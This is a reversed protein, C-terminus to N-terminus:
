EPKQKRKGFPKKGGVFKSFPGPKGASKAAPKGFPRRSPRDNSRDASRNAASRDAPRGTKGASKGFPKKVYPKSSAFEPKASKDFPKKGSFSKPKGTFGEGTKRFPKRESPRFSKGEASSHRSKSESAGVESAGERRRSFPPRSGGFERRPPRSDGFERRPPRAEGLDRRPPRSEGFERRPPRGEGADRRPLRSEGFDRRPPRSDSFERRPPRSEGFDRRPPRSKGFDERKGAFGGPKSFSKRPRDNFPKGTRFSSGERDFRRPRESGSGEAEGTRPASPRFPRSRKEEDWPKTFDPKASRNFPRRERDGRDFPKAPRPTFGGETRRPKAVFKNIRPSPEASEEVPAVPTEVSEAAPAAPAEALTPFEGAIYLATKGEIAITELQRAAILAHIVERIRSRAALPSLFVEVEEETPLIAQNLYLSILASLASPQGANAGAKIQKTFRTTTLEWLTPANDPQPFPLVRLHHWLETLARLVATETVENGLQTALDYASLSIKEALLNYAALALPSVKAPGNTAPPQKWAKDGRLTFIFSFVAPSVLFDPTETGAASGLLNLPIAAGEAILRVLLSRAETTEALTPAANATGLVAEVFSPTPVPLQPRPTYLALGSASLWDRLAELTLLPLADHHWHALRTAALQAASPSGPTSLTNGEQQVANQM